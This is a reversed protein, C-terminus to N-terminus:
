PLLFSRSGNKYCKVYDAVFSLAEEESNCETLVEIIERKQGWIFIGDAWVFDPNTMARGKSESYVIM